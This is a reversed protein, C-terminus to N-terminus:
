AVRWLHSAPKSKAPDWPTLDMHDLSTMEALNVAFFEMATALHSDQNHLPKPTEITSKERRPATKYRQLAGLAREARRSAHFDIQPLLDKLAQQRGPHYRARNKSSSRVRIGRKRLKDYFTQGDAGRTKGFPDGVYVVNTLTATWDMLDTAEDDYDYKEWDPEGALITAFYDATPDKKLYTDVVRYRGLTPDHQLWVIGTEADTGPDISCYVKGLMPDYPFDGAMRTRTTPYIWTGDGAFPNREIERHFDALRGQNEYNQRKASHWAEDHEPHMWWDLELVSEPVAKQMQHWLQWHHDGNEFSESSVAFRHDTSEGAAGWLLMGDACIAFEDFLAWTARVGRPSKATTSEGAIQSGNEPNEILLRTKHKEWDFGRPQLWLPLGTLIYRIKYFLSKDGRGDVMEEKHSLLLVTSDPDFLFTHTALYCFTWSLGMDRAKSVAGDPAIEYDDLRQAFWDMVDVQFAYPVAERRSIKSFRRRPEKVVGYIAMFYPCSDRCKAWELAQIEPDHEAAARIETRYAAVQDRWTTWAARETPVQQLEDPLGLIVPM